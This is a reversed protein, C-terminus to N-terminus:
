DLPGSFLNGGKARGDAKKKEKGPPGTSGGRCSESGVGKFYTTEDSVELSIDRAPLTAETSTNGGSFELDWPDAM